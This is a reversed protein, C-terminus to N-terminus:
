VGRFPSVRHALIQAEARRIALEIKAVIEATDIDYRSALSEALAKDKHLSTIISADLIFNQCTKADEKTVDNVCDALLNCSSCTLTIDIAFHYRLAEEIAQQLQKQNIEGAQSLILLELERIRISNKKLLSPVIKDPYIIGDRVIARGLKVYLSDIM